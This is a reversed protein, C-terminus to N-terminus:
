INKISIDSVFVLIETYRLRIVIFYLLFFNYYYCKQQKQKWSKILNVVIKNGIQDSQVFM